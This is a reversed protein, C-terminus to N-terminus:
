PLTTPTGAGEPEDVSSAPQLVVADLGAQPHEHPYALTRQRPAEGAGGGGGSSSIIVRAGGGVCTSSSAGAHPRTSATHAHSGHRPHATLPGSGHQQQQQQQQQAAAATRTTAPSDMRLISTSQRSSDGAHPSSEPTWVQMLQAHPGLLLTGQGAEGGGGGGSVAVDSSGGSEGRQQQQQQQQPQGTSPAGPRVRLLGLVRPTVMRGGMVTGPQQETPPSGLLIDAIGAAQAEGGPPAAASSSTPAAAAAAPAGWASVGAPALIITANSSESPQTSGPPHLSSSSTQAVEAAAAAAQQAGAPALVVAPDSSPSPRVSGPPQAGGHDSPAAAAASTSPLPASTGPAADGGRPPSSVREPEGSAPGQQQRREACGAAPPAAAVSSPTDQGSEEEVHVEVQWPTVLLSGPGGAPRAGAATGTSSAPRRRPALPLHYSSAASFQGSPQQSLPLQQSPAAAFTARGDSSATATLAALTLPASFRPVSSSSAAAGRDLQMETAATTSTLRHTIFSSQGSDRLSLRSDARTHQPALLKRAPSPLGAQGPAVIAVQAAVQTSSAITSPSTLGYPYPDLSMASQAPQDAAPPAACAVVCAVARLSSRWFATTAPGHNSLLPLRGCRCRDM